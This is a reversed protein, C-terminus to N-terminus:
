KVKEQPETTTERLIRPRNQVEAFIRGLYFGHIGLVAMILGSLFWMSLITSTWGQVTFVGALWGIVLVMSILASLGSFALGVIVSLKLPRDSFRIIIAIALRILRRLSYSSAGAARQSRDTEMQGTQLGTLSVMIPLFVEQEGFMLLTDVMRRSYIGFNGINSIRVGALTHVLRYFLNSAARRFASDSWSGRNVVIAEVKDTVAKKYLDPIIGPDDQLDCDIVAVWDGRAEELGAWIALHQGHNRALRLGRVQAHRQALDEILPWPTDPGRDDVFILEWTLDTGNLAYWVADVLAELCDTCGYVPTVISIDPTQTM